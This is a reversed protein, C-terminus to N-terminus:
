IDNSSVTVGGIASSTITYTTGNSTYTYTVGGTQPIKKMYPGKWGSYDDNTGDDEGGNNDNVVLANLGAATLPYSGIDMRFVELASMMTRIDAKAKGIKATDTTGGFQQLGITALIGIIVVVVMLEILTFGKRNKIVRRFLSM